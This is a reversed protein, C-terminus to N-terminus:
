DKHLSTTNIQSLLESRKIPIYCANQILERGLAEALAKAEWENLLSPNSSLMQNVSKIINSDALKKM